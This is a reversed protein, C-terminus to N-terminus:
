REVFNRQSIKKVLDFLEYCSAHDCKGLELHNFCIKDNVMKIIASRETMLAQYILQGSTQKM